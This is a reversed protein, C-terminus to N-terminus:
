EICQGSEQPKSERKHNISFRELHAIRRKKEIESLSEWRQKAAWESKTLGERELEFEKGIRHRKTKSLKCTPEGPLRDRIDQLPDLPCIPVSCNIFRPCQRMVNASERESVCSIRM